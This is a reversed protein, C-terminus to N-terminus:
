MHLSINLESAWHRVALLFSKFKDCSTKSFCGFCKRGTVNNQSHGVPCCKKSLCIESTQRVIYSKKAPYPQAEVSRCLFVAIQKFFPSPSTNTLAVNKFVLRKKLFYPILNNLTMFLWWIRHQSDITKWVMNLGFTSALFMYPKRWSTM